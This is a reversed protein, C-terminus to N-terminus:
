QEDDFFADNLILTFGAGMGWPRKIEEYHDGIKNGAGMNTMSGTSSLTIWHQSIFPQLDGVTDNNLMVNIKSNKTSLLQNALDTGFIEGILLTMKAKTPTQLLENVINLTSSLDDDTKKAWEKLVENFKQQEKEGWFSGTASIVGGAFPIAGLSNLIFRAAQKGGPKELLATMMQLLDKKEDSM